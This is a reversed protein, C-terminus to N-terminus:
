KSQPPFSAASVDGFISKYEEDLLERNRTVVKQFAAKVQDRRIVLDSFQETLMQVSLESMPQHYRNLEFSDLLCDNKSDYSISIVPIDLMLGLLLNHFRPSVILDCDALQALLQDVSNCGEDNIAAEQYRIGRQELRQRLGRRADGDYQVDGQLIRIEYGKEVLWMVFDCMKDLYAFHAAVQEQSTGIHVDAHHMIGVGVVLRKRRDSREPFMNQPLSFALDPFVPDADSNFGYNKIRKKSADDRYSRYDALSLSIRILWRSLRSYIPGVGVSVFRVKCRAVTAALTWKFLQFPYGTVSTSYDTLMGLGTMVMLHTRRLAWAARVFDRAEDPVRRFILRLLHAVSGRNASGAPRNRASSAEVPVAAINHRQRTDDPGYCVSFLQAQPLQKGANSLIAQLTCENGLNQVGFTGFFAIIPRKRLKAMPLNAKAVRIRQM